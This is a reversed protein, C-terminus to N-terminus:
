KRRWLASWALVDRPNGDTVTGVFHCETLQVLEFLPALEGCLEAAHVRPPGEEGEVQQNANGAFTMYHGGPSTVRELTKLFGFLHVRRMVHYVGRDFVLPFPEGLDPLELLDAARFDVTVGAEAAKEIARGIAKRSLDVGVVDFGGRALQIADTGTGCGMELARTPGIEFQALLRALEPEPIGTDWPTDGDVYRQNWDRFKPAM